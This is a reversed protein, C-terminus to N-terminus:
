GRRAQPRRRARARRPRARALSDARPHGPRRPRSPHPVGVAVVRYKERILASDADEMNRIPDDIIGVDAPQGTLSGGVGVAFLGGQHGAIQWRTAAKSDDAIALGLKDPLPMGTVADRAQAGHEYVLNRARRSHSRALTESYSGLVIRWSPDRVLGRVPGWMSVRTSKGLQPPTTIMLRADPTDFAWEIGDDIAELMPTQVTGPDCAQALAGASPWRTNAERRAVERELRAALAARQAPSWGATETAILDTIPNTM